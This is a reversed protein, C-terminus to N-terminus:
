CTSHILAVVPERRARRNYEAIADESQLVFVEAGSARAHAVTAEPVQLVLQVGRTLIVSAPRLTLLDEFDAVQIGPEHQTGTKRWDWGETGGPYLRADKFVRGTSDEIVGWRFAAVLPSPRTARLDAEILEAVATHGNRRAIDAPTENRYNRLRSMAGGALLTAVAAEHGAWAASHLPAYRQPETQVNPVAGAALLADIVNAHGHMAAAHLPSFQNSRLARPDAGCRLLLEVVETHGAAAALHLATLDNGSDLLISTGAAALGALTTVDGHIVAEKIVQGDVMRGVIAHVTAM